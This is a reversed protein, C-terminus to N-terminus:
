KVPKLAAQLLSLIENEPGGDNALRKARREAITLATEGKSAITHGGAADIKDEKVEASVNANKALLLKVGELNRTLVASMLPTIGYKDGANVEAGKSLLLEILEKNASAAKAQEEASEKKLPSMAAFYLPTRGDETTQNPDAGHELFLKTMEPNNFISASIVACNDQSDKLRCDLGNALLKKAKEQDNKLISIFLGSLEIDVHRKLLAGAVQYETYRPNGKDLVWKLQEVGGPDGNLLQNYGVYCYSATRQAEDKAESLVQKSTIRGDLYSIMPFLWSGAVPKTQLAAELMERFRKEDAQKMTLLFAVTVYKVNPDDKPTLKMYQLFDDATSTLNGTCMSATGRLMYADVNKPDARLVRDLDSQAKEFDGARLYLVARGYYRDDKAEGDKSLADTYAELAKQNDRRNSLLLARDYYANMYKPDAKIAEDYDSLAKEDYGLAAYEGARSYLADADQPAAKLRRDFDQIAKKHEGLRVYVAGRGYIAESDSSNLKIGRNYDKVSEAFKGLYALALARGGYTKADKKGENIALTYKDVAKQFEQASLAKEGEDFHAQASQSVKSKSKESDSAAFCDVSGFGASLCFLATAARLVSNSKM